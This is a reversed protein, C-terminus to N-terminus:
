LNNTSLEKNGDDERIQTERPVYNKGDLLYKNKEYHRFGFSEYLDCVMSNKATPLYEGEIVSFGNEAAIEVIRNLMFEEMGRKLVRCSMLWTDIFVRDERKELIVVGVLGHDGFCDKLTFSQTLYHEDAAIRAIDAETYRITRLNFQNSRQTLQAIRSFFFKEFPTAAGKMDLKKLYETLSACDAELRVREAEARYQATRAIDNESFSATEFLNLAKLYSTRLAPDEPLEPVTIEPVLERVLSREFPNDDLFVMSDMGLNLMKQIRKINAAKDEWNASFITIDELRLIMDPHKEFPEKAAAEENKSCVCLLIGRKKLAKLWIQLETFAHGLGLEGLEIGEMGDEGIVGGWLTNDLDLIVCKRLQGQLTRVLDIVSKAMWTLAAQTVAMKANCYLRPDSFPEPFVSVRVADMDLLYLGADGAAREMMLLKLKQLQFAFSDKWKLGYSGFVFDNEVEFTFQFILAKTKAHISDYVAEMRRMEMEAFASTDVCDQFREWLKQTCLFLLIVDAGFECVPSSSDYVQLEIQDYDTDLVEVDIGELVAYGEVAQALHQTSSDGLVAIRYPRGAKKSKKKKVARALEIFSYEAEM